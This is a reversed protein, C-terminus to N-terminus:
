QQLISSLPKFISMDNQHNTSKKSVYLYNFPRRTSRITNNPAYNVIKDPQVTNYKKKSRMTSTSQIMTKSAPPKLQPRNGCCYVPERTQPVSISESKIPVPIPDPNIIVKSSQIPEKIPEETPTKENSIPTTEAVPSSSESDLTDLIENVQKEKEQELTKKIDEFEDSPIFPTITEDEDDITNDIPFEPEDNMLQSVYDNDNQIHNNIIIFVNQSSTDKTTIEPEIHHITPENSQTEQNLIQQQIEQKLTQQQIEQKLTQQQIEQKLTPQQIEQEQKM